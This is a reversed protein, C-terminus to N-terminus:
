QAPDRVILPLYVIKRVHTEIYGVISQTVTEQTDTIATMESEHTYGLLYDWEVEYGLTELKNRFSIAQEPLSPLDYQCHLVYFSPLTEGARLYVGPSAEDLAAEDTHGGYFTQDLAPDFLANLEKLNYAGSMSIVGRIHGRLARYDDHTALLSILHGGASHGFLFINQVDGGYSEINQVTWEFAAAVDQLNEDYWAVKDSDIPESSWPTPCSTTGAAFTVENATLRYDVNVVVWGQEAVLTPTLIDTYWDAYGDTWGGGHVFFVVPRDHLPQGDQYPQLITVTRTEFDTKNSYRADNIRCPYEPLYMRQTIVVGYTTGSLVPADASCPMWLILLLVGVGSMTCILRWNNMKPEKNPEKDAIEAM